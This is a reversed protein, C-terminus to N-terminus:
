HTTAFSRTVKEWTINQRGSIWRACAVVTAWSLVCFIHPIALVRPRKWGHPLLCATLAGAYFIIQGILMLQFFPSTAALIINTALATIQLPAILLRLVKHSMTQWWLPDRLPNFVWRERSFLQFAGGITRVKRAFEQRAAPVSDYARAGQETVIRLGRRAIRLPILLDDTITDAPIPEFLERRIAYIAGTVVITSAVLAECHRVFKEYRWYLGAGEAGGDRTLMLEGTVAGVGSDAFSAVLARLASREFRQRVDAFVVVDGTAEPVLADLVAPKGRRQAFIFPRVRPDTIAQLQEVTSDTSGDSGILIEIRDAPYDLSLLNEIKPMISLAENHAAIVISISPEIAERTWRRPRLFAVAAVALPYGVFIYAILGASLWSPITATM